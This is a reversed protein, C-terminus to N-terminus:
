LFHGIIERGREFGMKIILNSKLERNIHKHWFVHKLQQLKILIRKFKNKM